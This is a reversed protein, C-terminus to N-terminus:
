RISCWGSPASARASAPADPRVAIKETAHWLLGVSAPFGMTIGVNGKEQAAAPAAALWLAGAVVMMTVNRQM